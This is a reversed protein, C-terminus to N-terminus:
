LWGVAELLEADGPELPIARTRSLKAALVVGREGTAALRDLMATRERQAAANNDNGTALIEAVQKCQQWTSFPQEDAM